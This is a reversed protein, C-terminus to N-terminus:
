VKPITSYPSQHLFYIICFLLLQEKGPLTYALFLGMNENKFNQATEKNCRNTPLNLLLSAIELLCCFSLACDPDAPRLSHGAKSQYSSLSESVQLRRGQNIILQGQLFPFFVPLRQLTSGMRDMNGQQNLPNFEKLIPPYPDVDENTNLHLKRNRVVAIM